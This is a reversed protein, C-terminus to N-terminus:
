GAAIMVSSLPKSWVLGLLKPGPPRRESSAAIVAAVSASGAKMATVPLGNMKQTPASMVPMGKM